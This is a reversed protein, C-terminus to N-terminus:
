RFPLVKRSPGQFPPAEPPPNHIWQARGESWVGFIRGHWSLLLDKPKLNLRSENQIQFLNLPDAPDLVLWECDPELKAMQRLLPIAEPLSFQEGSFHQVFRGGRVQGRAELRWLTRLLQRWPPAAPERELLRKFLIGYRRLYALAKHECVAESDMPEPKLLSWRGAMEIGQPIWGRLARTKPKERDPTTLFRIGAFLDSRIARRAILGTLVRELQTALLGSHHRLEQFFAPGRALFDLVHQDESQLNEFDPSTIWVAQEDSSFLTIPTRRNLDLISHSAIRAWQWAGTMFLQDLWWTQYSKCRLPLIQEEWAQASAEFGSLLGLIEGLTQPEAARYDGIARQWHTLFRFFQASPVPKTAERLGELTLRHIRSLVHRDCFLEEQRRPDLYGRLVQGSAELQGLHTQIFEIPANFWSALDNVSQPGNVELFRSLIAQFTAQRAPDVSPVSECLWGLAAFTEVLDPTTLAPQGANQLRVTGLPAASLWAQWDPPCRDLPLLGLQSLADLFEDESTAEPWVEQKVTDIAQPNLHGFARADDPSLTRRTRVAQTRREELPADDLFAYPKANLIEYALPSPEPLDLALTAISGSEIGKLVRLWGDVDMTETLCDQVTQQVLPHDPVERDGVINELCALQDPFVAGLLDEAQMRILFPATRKGGRARLVALSRTANWRWRTQFMPADLLAQVLVNKASASHLFQFIDSLPFSHKQSLSILIANENAAAQLEFNFSRCFRKRLALGWARNIRSGFPSHIILQMGGSEDFFREALVLAQHPLAGFIKYVTEFYTAIQEAAADSLLFSKILGGRLDNGAELTTAAFVQLDGYAHSLEDSRSPAEGFWFPITPPQGQADEVYVVGSGVRQIRWNNNGLSFIDGPMSEIAFDENLTGVFTGEPLLEVRYDANDPIAGGSTLAALRSGPRGKIEGNAPNWFLHAGRRGRQTPFGQVALQILPELQAADLNRYPDAKGFLAVLEDLNRPQNACEAVIQQLLIDQPAQPIITQELDGKRIADLAAVTELLEERSLPFLRGKPVGGVQHRARGVRQLLTGIRRPNGMHCVCEVHGIDIGLELSATAILAKLQGNKLKQEADFRRDASMSGHHTAITEPALKQALQYTLREALRRTHVFILTTQHAEIIEVLKRHLELWVENSMVAELPSDPLVIELDWDKVHGFDLLHCPTDRKGMLFAGTRSLPKQTASLGIRQLPRGCLAELRELSLSLHAGRREPALAHIEDVIVTEVSRLQNRGKESTLLLYLSEPTTILLHPPKKHQQARTKNPTDGTRVGCRIPQKQFQPGLLGEIEALPWNLNREIDYNLAKLPSIYLVQTQNLLSNERHRRLLRDLVALFSALTKGSGTPAALVLSEGRQICPWAAAQAPTPQDFHSQFWSQIVPDFGTLASHTMRSDYHM